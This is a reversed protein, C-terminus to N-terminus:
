YYYKYDNIIDSFSEFTTFSFGVIVWFGIGVLLGIISCVIGAIAMGNFSSDPKKSVCGLILGIIAFIIGAGYCCSAPISLIGLVLSAIALGNAPPTEPSQQYYNPQQYNEQWQQNNQSQYTNQSQFNDQSQYNNQPQQNSQVSYNDSSSPSTSSSYNNQPQQNNQSNNDENSNKNLDM